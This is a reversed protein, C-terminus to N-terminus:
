SKKKDKNCCSKKKKMDCSKGKCDKKKKSHKLECQKKDGGCCKKKHACGVGFTLASSLLVITFLQKM